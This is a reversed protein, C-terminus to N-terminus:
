KLTEKSTINDIQTRCTLNVAVRNLLYTFGILDYEDDDLIANFAEKVAILMAALDVDVCNESPTLKPYNTLERDKKECYSDCLATSFTEIKKEFETM